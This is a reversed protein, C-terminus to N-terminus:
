DVRASESKGLLDAFLKRQVPGPSCDVVVVTIVHYLVDTFIYFPIVGNHACLQLTSDSADAPADANFLHAAYNSALDM